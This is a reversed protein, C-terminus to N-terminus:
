CSTPCISLPLYNLIQAAQRLHYLWTLIICFRLIGYCVAVALHVSCPFSSSWASYPSNLELPRLHLPFLFHAPLLWLSEPISSV